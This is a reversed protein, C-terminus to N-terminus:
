FESSKVIKMVLGGGAAMTFSIKRNSPIDIMERKYDQAAKDANVGDKFVEAQFNGAGLFSLDLELTRADWNNIAGVYWDTGSQRAITVYKSIEGNLAKTENWVTPISAMFGTCEQEKEYNSPSDCLMSLPSEFVVYEAIQRTRTGQSMPESYVPQYNKKSANRMAGQTYDLPGAVMRVFPMTVDYTVQDVAPSAWKMHELGQVAEFTLANPLTRQLGTPKYTGHFDIVLKYKAAIKTAEYHFNVMVQDDRDIFDIKFGKIGMESYHKCVAEMNKMFPYCGTWLILGVGRENAYATLEKLNLEAIPEMIKGNEYWGEDLILYELKNKSAFNIYYKYTENNIGAEFDVGYLNWDNWWEWASKGAKIWSIDEIQTPTALKYVMDNDLLEHEKEAVILTRWPFQTKGECKAIFDERTLVVEHYIGEVGGQKVTKPYPAFVGKVSTSNDSVNLYMGPYNILDAETLCIKKGNPTNVLLPMVALKRKDWDSLKMNTYVNVFSKFFQEEFTGNNTMNDAHYGNPRVYTVYATSGTPFNFTAEESQVEFAKKATSVFRYAIGDNYARFILRYDGRFTLALENYVDAVTSRKYLPSKIQENVSKLESKLLRPNIGFAKGNTMTMSVPSQELLADSEHSVSYTIKETISIDIAIKGDPSKVMFPKASLSLSLFLATLFCLGRISLRRGNTAVFIFKPVAPQKSHTQM